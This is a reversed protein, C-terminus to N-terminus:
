ASDDYTATHVRETGIPGVGKVKVDKFSPLGVEYIGSAIVEGDANAVQVTLQAGPHLDQKIPMDGKLKLSGVLIPDELEPRHRVELSLLQPQVETQRSDAM